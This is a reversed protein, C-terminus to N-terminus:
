SEGPFGEFSLAILNDSYEGQPHSNHPVLQFSQHLPRGPVHWKGIHVTQYGHEGLWQGYDPLDARLKRNNVVVNNESPFRGTCWSARAPCCIPDPTYSKSFDVSRAALRDINPTKLYPNGHCSLAMHSLQDLNLFLLNPADKAARLSGQPAATATNFFAAISLASGSKLFDRRTFASSPSASPTSM